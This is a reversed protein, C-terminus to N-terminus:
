GKTSGSSSLLAPGITLAPVMTMESFAASQAPSVQHLLFAILELCVYSPQSSILKGPRVIALSETHLICFDALVGATM